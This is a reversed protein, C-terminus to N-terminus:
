SSWSRVLAPLEAISDLVHDPQQEAPLRPADDARTAGTLVLVTRMGVRKAGFIDTEARDGVMVSQAIGACVADADAGACNAADKFCGRRRSRCRSSGECLRSSHNIQAKIKEHRSKAAYM